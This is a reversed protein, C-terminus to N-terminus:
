SHLMVEVREWGCFFSLFAAKVKDHKYNNLRMLDKMSDLGAQHHGGVPSVVAGAGEDDESPVM